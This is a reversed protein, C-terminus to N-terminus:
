KSLVQSYLINLAVCKLKVCGSGGDDDDSSGRHGSHIAQKVNLEGGENQKEKADQGSRRHCCVCVCVHEAIMRERQRKWKYM